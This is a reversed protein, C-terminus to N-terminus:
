AAEDIPRSTNRREECLDGVLALMRKRERLADTVLWWGLWAYFGSFPSTVLLLVEVKDM